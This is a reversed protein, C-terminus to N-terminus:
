QDTSKIQQYLVDQEITEAIRAAGIEIGKEYLVDQSAGDNYLQDFEMLLQDVTKRQNKM